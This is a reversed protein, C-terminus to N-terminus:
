PKTGVTLGRVITPWFRWVLVVPVISSVVAAAAVPGTSTAFQRAQGWLVLSLPTTGPGGILFGIVFDNWVLIFQLIVVAVLVPQYTRRVQNIVESQRVQGLLAESVVSPPASAFAARLLLVAFPLGVAAHVLALSIRSGAMDLMAFAHSLPTAYMPLPTVALVVFVTIVLKGLRPPLGGWALLYATPVAVLLTLATALGATFLTSILAQGLEAGSAALSQLGLGEPRWWGRLRAADPNHLASALLVVMPLMWILGASVAVILGLRRRRPRPKTRPRSACSELVSSPMAWNRRLGRVGIVAVFAVIVFMVLALVAARGPAPDTPMRWWHLVLVDADHQMPGPVTILVLEFLRVAAVVLTLTVIGTIPRLIPLEVARLRRWGRLGEAQVTRGIDDPIAALGARFLAVTYGLWTWCFASVLVVWFWGPGLWVKSGGFIATSLATVTGRQPAPDFIIRFAAGAVLTSMAFPLILAPQLFSWLSQVRHGILAISLGTVVLALAVGIWAISNGIAHVVGAERLVAFNAFGFGGPTRFASVATLTMPVLLLSALVLAPLGLLYPGYPRHARGPVPRGTIERGVVELDLENISLAM